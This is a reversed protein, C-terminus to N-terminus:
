RLLLALVVATALTVAVVARRIGAGRDAGIPEPRSWEERLGPRPDTPEARPVSAIRHAGTDTLGGLLARRLDAQIRRALAPDAKLRELSAEDLEDPDLGAERVATHLRDQLLAAMGEPNRVFGVIGLVRRAVIAFTLGFAVLLFLAPISM